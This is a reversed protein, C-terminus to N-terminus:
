AVRWTAVPMDLIPGTAMIGAANVLGDIGGVSDAAKRIAEEVETENTVDASVAHGGIARALETATAADRDLLVVAAGEEAFLKATARGIGSAAGTVIIRRGALRQMEKSKVLTNM